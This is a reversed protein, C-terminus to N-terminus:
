YGSLSSFYGSECVVFVDHEHTCTDNPHLDCKVFNIDDSPKCRLNRMYSPRDLLDAIYEPKVDIVYDADESTPFGM